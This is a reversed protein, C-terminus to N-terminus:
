VYIKGRYEPFDTLIKLKIQQKLPSCIFLPLAEDLNCLSQPSVVGNNSDVNRAEDEIHYRINIGQFIEEMDRYYDGNGWVIVDAYQRKKLIRHYRHTTISDPVDHTGIPFSIRHKDLYERYFALLRQWSSVMDEDNLIHTFEKEPLVFCLLYLLAISYYYEFDTSRNLYAGLLNEEVLPSGPFYVLRPLYLYARKKPLAQIVKFTQKIDEETEAPNCIIFDYKMNIDYEALMRTYRISQTLPMHRRFITENIHESGSQFGVETDVFGADVAMKLLDPNELIQKPVLYAWFPLTIDSEYCKFFEKLSNTSASLFEDRLLIFTSGTDRAMRLEEMLHDLPRNRRQKVRIGEKRYVKFWQGASCYTCANLCGRGFFTSYTHTNVIKGREEFSYVRNNEIHFTNRPISQIKYRSIDPIALKNRVIKGDRKYCINAMSEISIGREIKLILEELVNEAEGIFVYDVLDAYLKPDLTPGLGGALMVGNFKKRIKPIVTQALENDVTRSSVCVIEPHLNQVLDVLVKIEQSRWPNVGANGGIIDGNAVVAERYITEKTFWELKRTSPIKFFIVSLDHGATILLNSLINVGISFDNYFTLFTIKAM